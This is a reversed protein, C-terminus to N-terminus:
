TLVPYKVFRIPLTPWQKPSNNDVITNFKWQIATELSLIKTGADGYKEEYLEKRNSATPPLITGDPGKRLIDVYEVCETVVSKENNDDTLPDNNNNTTRKFKAADREKRFEASQRLFEKFGKDLEYESGDSEIQEALEVNERTISVHHNKSFGGSRNKNNSIRRQRKSAKLPLPYNSSKEESFYYGCGPPPNNKLKQQQLQSQKFSHYYREYYKAYYSYNQHQQLHWKAQSNCSKIIEEVRRSQSSM